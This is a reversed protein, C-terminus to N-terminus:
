DLEVEVVLLEAEESESEYRGMRTTIEIIEKSTEM